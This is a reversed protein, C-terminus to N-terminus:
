QPVDSQSNSCGASKASKSREFSKIHELKKLGECLNIFTKSVTDVSILLEIVCPQDTTAAECLAQRLGRANDTKWFPLNLARSIGTYNWDSLKSIKEAGFMKMANWYGNNMILVIPRTNCKKANSLEMGTMQFGGDGVLALVRKGTAQEYGMTVPVGFGMSLFYAPLLKRRCDIENSCYLNDGVDTSLAIEPNKQFFLSLECNMEDVTIPTDGPNDIIRFPEKLEKGLVISDQVVSLNVPPAFLELFIKIPINKYTRDNIRVENDILHIYDSEPSAFCAGQNIDTNITGIQILCDSSEIYERAKTSRTALGMYSGIYRPETEGIAGQSMFTTAVPANILGALRLVPGELKKRLVEIGAVIVPRRVNKIIDSFESCAKNVTGVPAIKIVDQVGAPIKIEMNVLNRPMELYVPLSEHECVSIANCIEQYATETNDLVAQYATVERYVNRQTDHSDTVQHHLGVFPKQEHTGAMGAIVVIPVREAYAAAVANLVNYAGPGYTASIVSIGNSGMASGHAAFGVAPEHSFTVLKIKEHADVACCFAASFDGPIAYIHKVGKRSLLDLLVSSLKNGATGQTNTNSM